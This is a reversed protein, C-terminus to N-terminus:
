TLSFLFTKRMPLLNNVTAKKGLTLNIGPVQTTYLEKNNKHHRRQQM